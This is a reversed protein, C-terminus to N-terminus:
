SRRRRTKTPEIKGVRKRVDVLASEVVGFRDDVQKSLEAFKQDTSERLGEIGELGLRAMSNTEELLIQVRDVKKDVAAVKQGVTAVKQDVTAVKEDVTTLKSEISDLRTGFSDLTTGFSDLRTGVNDVKTALAGFQKVLQRVQEEMAMEYDAMTADDEAAFVQSRSAQGSYPLDRIFERAVARM